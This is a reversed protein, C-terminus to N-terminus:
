QHVTLYVTQPVPTAGVSVSIQYDGDAVQPVTIDFQYLGVANPALGAYTVTAPTTGFSVSFNPISNSQSVVVGPPIPPTVSGFGIGYATITDGPKAPAFPVEPILGANGVYTAGDQFLAVLYQKSAVLEPPNGPVYFSSPALLGPEIAAMQGTFPQSTGVCTTVTIKVPGTNSDAPVQANIQNGSIYDVFAGHGDITVTSTDLGTPANAGQFDSGAWLRTDVALDSGKIEIWSGPAFNSFAGFDTASNVSTISPAASITCTVSSAPAAIATANFQVPPMGAISATVTIAGANAGLTLPATATGTSDTVVSAAVTAAGSTVAFNVIVGPVPVGAGGNVQAQLSYPLTWGVQGTQNNGGTITLGSPLDPKLMRVANEIVDGIYIDGASDIALGQASTLQAATAIGGDGVYNGPFGEFITTGAITTIIQTAASIKRITSSADDAIYLNDSSDFAIGYPGFAAATAPGGDGGNGCSGFGAYTSITGDLAVRRISCKQQDAIYLAGKSDVAVWGPRWMEADIALGGDGTYGPMGNGAVTSIMGGPTVMRVRYNYVDAIYLNGAQDLALGGASLQAATARGGDGSFGFTGIGAITTITGKSVKRVRYEDSIYLNGAADLALGLPQNLAASAAPGGDGPPTATGIPYTNGNGAFTTITGNPAVKRVRHNNTDAVYLNGVADVATGSSFFLQAGIAAGGDGSYAQGDGAVTNIIGGSASVKRLRNNASDAIYINGSSDVGSELPNYLTASTAAGGDGTFSFPGGPGGGAVTTIVGTSAAVQRVRGSAEDTIYLNGAADLTVASPECAASMAPGKDGSFGPAGSCAVTSIVGGTSVKRVRNNGTDAIYLNGATDIAM